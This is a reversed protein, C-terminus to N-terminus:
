LWWIREHPVAQAHLRPGLSTASGPQMVLLRDFPVGAVCDGQLESGPQIAHEFFRGHREDDVVGVLTLDTRCLAAYALEALDGAGYFAVRKGARAQDGAALAGLTEVLHQRAAAYAAVTDRMHSHNLSALERQGAATLAYHAGADPCRRVWGQDMVGRMLSNARGLAIGLTRAIGRQSIGRGASVEELILRTYLDAHRLVCETGTV